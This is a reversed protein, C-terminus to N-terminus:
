LDYGCNPCSTAGHSGRPKLPRGMVDEPLVYVYQGDREEDIREVLGALHM